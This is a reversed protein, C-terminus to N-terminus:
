PRVGSVKPNWKEGPLYDQLQRIKQLTPQFDTQMFLNFNQEDKKWMEGPQGQHFNEGYVKKHTEDDPARGHLVHAHEVVAGAVMRWCGTAKGLQLWINDIFLHELFPPFIPWGVAQLLPLSWVTATVPLRFSELRRDNASVFNKGDLKAILKKDFGKTIPLHDDNFIGIWTTDAKLKPIYERCKGGMTVADTIEIAWNDPLYKNNIIVYENQNKNWDDKDILIRGPTSIEADRAAKLFNKLKELRNLTPLLWM